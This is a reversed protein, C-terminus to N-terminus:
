KAVEAPASGCGWFAPSPIVLWAGLARLETPFDPSDALAIAINPLGGAATIGGGAQWVMDLLAARGQWPAAVVLYQGMGGTASLKLGLLVAFCIVAFLGAPLYDIARTQDHGPRVDRRASSCLVVM